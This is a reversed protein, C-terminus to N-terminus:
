LAHTHTLLISESLYVQLGPQLQTLWQERHNKCVIRVTTNSIVTTQCGAVAAVFEKTVLALGPRPYEEERPTVISAKPPKAAAAPEPAKVETVARLKSPKPLAM